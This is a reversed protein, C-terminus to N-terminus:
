RWTRRPTGSSRPRMNGRDQSGDIYNLTTGGRFSGIKLALQQLYHKLVFHKVYAQERQEYDERLVM